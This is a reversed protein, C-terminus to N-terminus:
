NMHRIKRQPLIRKLIKTPRLTRNLAIRLLNPKSQNPPLIRIGPKAILRQRRSQPRMGLKALPDPRNNHRDFAVRAFQLFCVGRFLEQHLLHTQQSPLRQATPGLVPDRHRLPLNTLSRLHM